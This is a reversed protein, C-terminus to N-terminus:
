FFLQPISVFKSLLSVLEPFVDTNKKIGQLLYIINEENQSMKRLGKV